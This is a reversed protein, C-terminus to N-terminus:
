CCRVREYQIRVTRPTSGVDIELVIEARQGLIDPARHKPDFEWRVALMGGGPPVSPSRSIVEGSYNGQATHLTASKLTVSEANGYVDFSPQVWWEGILGGLSKTRLSLGDFDRSWEYGQPLWGVPQLRYGPDCALCLIAAGALVSTSWLRAPM